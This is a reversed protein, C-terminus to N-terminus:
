NSSKFILWKSAVYNIVVVIVNSLVKMLNANLQFMDVTIMMIIVDLVLTGIRCGVFSTMEKIIENGNHARTEFVWTRNTIYAFIICLINSVVTSIGTNLGARDYFIYFLIINLLTTCVGFFLYLIVEKYHDYITKIKKLFVMKKPKEGKKAINNM